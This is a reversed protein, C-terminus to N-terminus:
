RALWGAIATVVAAPDEMTPLHGCGAFNVLAAGAIAEAMEEALESPTVGDVEGVGVLTPVAIAGLSPRSDIRAIIAKQHRLYASAGAREAMAVVDQVLPTDLNHPAVLGPQLTRAVLGFKGEEVLRIAAQRAQTRVADDARASTDLLALHTVREPAQRMIELAVYGGMSLGALAFRSPATELVHAAMGAVSDQGSMDAVACNATDGLGVVVDRWLRADCNLGPLLLLDTTM